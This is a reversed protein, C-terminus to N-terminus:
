LQIGKERFSLRFQFEHILWLGSTLNMGWTSQISRLRKILHFKTVCVIQATHVDYYNSLTKIMSTIYPVLGPKM